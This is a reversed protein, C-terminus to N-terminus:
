ARVREVATRNLSRPPSRGRTMEVPAPGFPRRLPSIQGGRRRFVRAPLNRREASRAGTSIVLPAPHRVAGRRRAAIRTGIPRFPRFGAQVFAKCRTWGIKVPRCHVREPCGRGEAAEGEGPECRSAALRPHGSRTRAHRRLPPLADGHRLGSQREEVPGQLAGRPEARCRAGAHTLQPQCHPLGVADDPRSRRNGSGTRSCDGGVRQRPPSIRPRMRAARRGSPAPPPATADGPSAFFLGMDSWHKVHFM